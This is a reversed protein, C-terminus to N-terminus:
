LRVLQGPQQRQPIAVDLLGAHDEVGDRHEVGVQLPQVPSRNRRYRHHPRGLALTQQTDASPLEMRMPMKPAALIAGKAMTLGALCCLWTSTAATAARSGARPRAKAALCPM